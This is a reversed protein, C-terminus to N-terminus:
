SVYLTQKPSLKTMLQPDDIAYMPYICDYAIAPKFDKEIKPELEKKIVNCFRSIIKKRVSLSEIAYREFDESLVKWKPNKSIKYEKLIESRLFKSFVQTKGKIDIYGYKIEIEIAQRIQELNEM